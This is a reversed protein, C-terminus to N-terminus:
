MSEGRGFLGAPRILLVLAMAIYVTVIAFNPFLAKGFSDVFGILLSGCFAGKLTGLGGVVVIALALVLIDFDLGLYAGIIPGGVVGGFAALFAGLAFVSAFYVKINIGLAGVMEKDEVGARIILGTRTKDLILWLSLALLLGIGIMALRYLPFVAGAIDVPHDLFAPRPLSRPIGGWIWKVVDMCCYAFGFTLLVQDLERKYLNRFFFRELVLALVLAILGAGLLALGFNGSYNVISLGLYAGLMYFSGHALNVIEMLGFILSLGAAILFLLLGYSLGNLAQIVVQSFEM